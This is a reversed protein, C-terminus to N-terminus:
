VAGGAALVKRALTTLARGEIAHIPVLAFTEYGLLRARLKAVLDRRAVGRYVTMEIRRHSLVHKVVGMRELRKGAFALIGSGVADAGEEDAHPPEWMGGFLGGALRRALLVTGNGSVVFGVRRWLLPAKKASARPLTSVLGAAYGECATRVPCSPCRPAKPVCVTAGLEMLAQNWSSADGPAVLMGALEWVRALGHGRKVDAKVAFLRALVRAVNGDVIPVAEGYAISAVAGATYRGVGSLALLESASEPFRGAREREIQRAAEHLMRARRYYGLGSWLRLVASEPADALEQVSPFTDLFREYYPVVTGVRTQQLMVESVWIAYPSRTKRWPLDRASRAYWALLKTHLEHVRRRTLAGRRM